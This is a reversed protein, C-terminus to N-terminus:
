LKKSNEGRPIANLLDPTRAEEAGSTKREDERREPCEVIRAYSNRGFLRLKFLGKM